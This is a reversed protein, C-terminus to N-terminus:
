WSRFLLAIKAVCCGLGNLWRLSASPFWQWTCADKKQSLFRYQEVADPVRLSQHLESVALAQVGLQHKVVEEELLLLTGRPWSAHALYCPPPFKSTIGKWITNNSSLHTSGPQKYERTVLSPSIWRSPLCSWGELHYVSFPKIYLEM